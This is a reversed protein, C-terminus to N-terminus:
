DLLGGQGLVEQGVRSHLLPSVEDYVPSATSGPEAPQKVRGKRQMQRRAQRFSSRVVRKLDGKGLEHGFYAKATTGLAWAVAATFASDFAATGFYGVGTWQVATILAKWGVVSAATYAGGALLAEKLFEGAESRTLSVGYLRAIRIVGVVVVGSQIFSSLEPVWAALACEAAMEQIIRDARQDAGGKVDRVLSGSGGVHRLMAAAETVQQNCVVLFKPAPSQKSEVIQLKGAGRRGSLFLPVLLKEEAERPIPSRHNRIGRGSALEMHVLALWYAPFFRDVYPLCEVYQKFLVPPCDLQLYRYADLASYIVSRCTYTLFEECFCPNQGPLRVAEWAENFAETGVLSSRLRELPVDLTTSPELEFYFHGIKISIFAPKEHLSFFNWLLAYSRLSHQDGEHYIIIAPCCPFESACIDLAQIKSTIYYRKGTSQERLAGNYQHICKGKLEVGILDATLPRYLSISSLDIGEAFIKSVLVAPDGDNLHLRCLEGRTGLPYVGLAGDRGHVEVIQHQQLYALVFARNFFSRQQDGQANTIKELNELYQQEKQAQGSAYNYWTTLNVSVLCALGGVAIKILSVSTEELM